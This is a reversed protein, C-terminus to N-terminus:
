FIDARGIMIKKSHRRGIYSGSYACYDCRLNCKQTIQLVVQKLKSKLIGDIHNVVPNFNEIQNNVYKKIINNDYAVGNQYKDIDSYERDTLTLIENTERSYL